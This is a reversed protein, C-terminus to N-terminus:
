PSVGCSSQSDSTDSSLRTIQDELYQIHNELSSIHNQAAVLVESLSHRPHVGFEFRNYLGRWFKITQPSVNVDLIDQTNEKVYLPNLFEARHSNIYAWLSYTREVVRLDRREKDSNSIFTGFQCSHVHDHIALLYRENFEWHQPLQQTLQWTADLFQTFVPAMEKSDGQIHGCRDSFKHGFSLWEKEI